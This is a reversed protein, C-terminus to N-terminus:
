IFLQPPLSFRQSLKRIHNLNLSRKGNLILSVLSKGGIENQFDTTKLNHQDMLVALVAVGSEIEALKQNFANFEPASAEYKEISSCLLEILAQHKDYDEILQEMLELAQQHQASNDIHFIFAAEAAITSISQEIRQLNM